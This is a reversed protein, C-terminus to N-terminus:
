SECNNNVRHEKAEQNKTEAVAIYEVYESHSLTGSVGLAKADEWVKRTM